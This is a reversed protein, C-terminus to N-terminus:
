LAPPPEGSKFHRGAVPLHPDVLPGYPHLRLDCLTQRVYLMSLRGTRRQAPLLAPCPQAGSRRQVKPPSVRRRVSCWEYLRPWGYTCIPSQRVQLMTEALWTPWSVVRLQALAGQGRVASGIQGRGHAM